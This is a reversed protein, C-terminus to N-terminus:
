EAPRTKPQMSEAILKGTENVLQLARSDSVHAYRRTTEEEAHGLLVGLVRTSGGADIARNGFSHRLDHLRLGPLKALSRIREWPKAINVLHQGGIHGVFVYPNGEVRQVSELVGIAFENLLIAKPGTKSDPLNLIRRDTDVYDWKLTLVENRRAGTFVILWLAAIVYPNESGDQAVQRLADGLRRAEEASLYRNREKEKYRTVGKCPNDDRWKREIAWTMLRSLATLVNNANRQTQGMQEHLSRVDDRTIDKILKTKFRPLVHATLMRQYEEKTRPKLRVGYIEIFSAIADKLSPAPPVSVRATPEIGKRASFAYDRALDRAKEVTVTGLKGLTIKRQRGKVRTKLIFSVSGNANKRAFFGRVEKDWLVEGPQLQRVRAITILVDTTTTMPKDRSVTAVLM